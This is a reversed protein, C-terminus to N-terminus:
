DSSGIKGSQRSSSAIVQEWDDPHIHEFKNFVPVVLLQVPLKQHPKIITMKNLAVLNVFIEATYGCDIVGARLVLDTKIVSGRERLLAVRDPPLAIHLGTPILLKGDANGPHIMLQTDGVYYLDLAASEGDYAPQYNYPDINNAELTALLKETILIPTPTM